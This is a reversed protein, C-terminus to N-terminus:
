KLEEKLSNLEKTNQEDDKFLYSYSYLVVGDVKAKKADACQRSLIQTDTKWENSEADLTGVKYAALGIYLKVGKTRPLECWNNLLTSFSFSDNPYNYGFYLQPAIYDIYGKTNCWLPIDAYLKQYNNDTNDFSIDAAPSVGFQVGDFRHVTRYIQSILLNVNTRRWDDLPLPNTINNKYENYSVKDFSVETTPYFYDDFHIGDVEYNNLIEEVGLTVLSRVEDSAPNLYMGTETFLVNNDNEEAQDTLYIYAPSTTPLKLYDNNQASIRYPNIWAHFELGLKHATDVMLRLPDYSPDDGNATKYQNSFPFYESPYAADCNARVQCIVANFNANKVKTFMDTIKNLAEEENHDIFDLEIYSFWVAKLNLTNRLKTTETNIKTQSNINGKNNAQYKGCGTLLFLIILVLSLIRRM